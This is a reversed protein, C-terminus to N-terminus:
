LCLRSLYYTLTLDQLRAAHPIVTWLEEKAPCLTAADVAFPLRTEGSGSRGVSVVSGLQLAGDVDGPHVQTAQWHLRTRLQSLAADGNGDWIQSLTRYSPGYAIGLAGFLTYLLPMDVAHVGCDARTAAHDVAGCGGQADRGVTASCHVAADILAQGQLEGSRVEFQNSSIACEVLQGDAEVVLPLLFFVGRLVCGEASQASLANSAARAVELYGAGPFVIRSQVVHDSVVAHLAGAIPSRFTVSGDASSLRHQVFPHRPDRWPFSCRTFVLLVSAPSAFTAQSSLEGLLAHAVIGSLGFAAAGCATAEVDAQTNIPFAVQRVVPLGGAILPNLVRLQANAAAYKKQTFLHAVMLSLLGSPAESHGASAKHSGAILPRGDHSCAASSVARMEIPDALASGLGQVQVSAVESPSLSASALAVQIARAQATGNPASLSASRGGATVSSGCLRASARLGVEISVAGVAESRGYGDAKTDFTKSRGDPTMIGGGVLYPLLILKAGAALVGTCEICQLARVGTHVAVLTSSCATNISMSPGHLDLAFALRGSAFHPQEGTANYPSERMLATKSTRLVHLSQWDLHEIGVFVGVDSGALSATQQGTDHLAAYGTELLLRQQPDMTLAEVPSVNFLRMDFCEVGAIFGGSSGYYVQRQQEEIIQFRDIPVPAMADGAAHQMAHLRGPLHSGGPWRSSVTGIRPSVFDSSRPQSGAIHLVSQRAASPAAPPALLTMLHAAIARSTPQEFALTASLKVSTVEALTSAMSTAALSDLGLELLGMDAELAKSDTVFDRVHDLVQNTVYTLRGDAPMSALQQQLVSQRAASPAAPPALLTMLHAAIARSTPQEFALTASLKVSTVEALTSAMSTAALSDLGLELLGMDAELAKSDTVFDRVHDLVQNTVYTLRRDAPMNALQQQLGTVCTQESSDHSVVETSPLKVGEGCAQQLQTRLEVAGLSDVGAEMLPADADVAGGAIQRVMGFVVDFGLINATSTTVSHNRKDEKPASRRGRLHAYPTLFGRVESTGSLLKSWDAPLVAFNRCAPLLARRLASIAVVRSIAGLGWRALLHDAGKRAAYGIDSVAGWNVSHGRSGSCYRYAAMSDLWSNAASHSAQGASGMLGAVSSYLNFHHLASRSLTAHLARAGHVKPGYTARFSRVHQNALTADALQHAAHFVGSICLRERCLLHVVVCVDRDDSADCRVRLVSRGHAAVWAWDNESGQMVRDSRSSLVLQRAGGEVLLRATLLGLGGLGGSFFSAGSDFMASTIVSHQMAVQALIVAQGRLFMDGQMCHSQHFGCDVLLSEWQRWNLLPSDQGAREPDHCENFFWWGDTLGFTTQILASTAQAENVVLLGGMCLLRECNHLTNRMFPTAHLCNTSILVGFQHLAFGQLRPDSDINLITYELFPFDVFRVRAQRLFVESVDTFVYRDCAYQLTPLVSSATGGSGAGVELAVVHRKDPLLELVLKLAAVICRNYFASVVSDEYLPLVAHMSGGPFLLEQYTVAGSLVCALSPGCREALQLEAYLDPHAALVDASAVNQELPQRGQKCCWRYLLRHHWVPIESAQCTRVAERQYQQCVSELLNYALLLQEMDLATMAEEIHSDLLPSVSALSIGLFTPQTDYPTVLRPVYVAHHRLMAETEISTRLHMGHVSGGPLRLSPHHIIAALGQGSEQVDVCGAPLTPYEQRCARALGWLGAHSATAQMIPQTEKTCLWTPPAGDLLSQSQLLRLAGDIVRLEAGCADAAPLLSATFVVCHWRVRALMGEDRSVTVHGYSSLSPLAHGVVLVELRTPSSICPIDYPVCCWDAEYHWRRQAAAGTMAHSGQDAITDDERMGKTGASDLSADRGKMNRLAVDLLHPSRILAECSQARGATTSVLLSILCEAYEDLANLLYSQDISGKQLLAEGVGAGTVLPLHLSTAMTASARRHRALTDMHANAAAYNAQEINGMLSTLSSFFICAGLPICATLAHLWFAGRSKAAHVAAFRDARMSRVLADQTTGAAHLLGLSGPARMLSYATALADSPEAIDAVLTRSASATMGLSSSANSSQASYSVRGSRSILQLHATGHKRALVAARLGLGGLGGTVGLTSPPQYSPTRQKHNAVAALQRLRSHLVKRNYCSISDESFGDDTFPSESHAEFTMRVAQEDSLVDTDVLRLSCHMFELRAVRVLGHMGGYAACASAPPATGPIAIHVGCTLFVLQPSPQLSAICQIVALATQTSTLHPMGLESGNAHLVITSAALMGNDDFCHDESPKNSLVEFSKRVDLDKGYWDAYWLYSGTLDWAGYNEVPFITENIETQIAALNSMLQPWAGQNPLSRQQTAIEQLRASLEGTSHITRKRDFCSILLYTTYQACAPGSGSYPLVTFVGNKNLEAAQDLWAKGKGARQGTCLVAADDPGVEIRTGDECYLVVCGDELCLRSLIKQRPMFRRCHALTAGDEIGGRQQPHSAHPPGVRHAQGSRVLMTEYPAFRHEKLNDSSTRGGAIREASHPTLWFTLDDNEPDKPLMKDRNLFLVHGRHVWVVSEDDPDLGRLVDIAAKSAGVIYKTRAHSVKVQYAALQSSHVICAGNTVHTPDVPLFPAGSTTEYTGAAFVLARCRFTANDCIVEKFQGDAIDKHSVYSTRTRVTILKHNAMQRIYDLVEAQAPRYFIGNNRQWQPALSLCRYSAGTNHLRLGPYDNKFWVGGVDAERDIVVSSYGCAAADRACGLGTIGCGIICIDADLVVKPADAKEDARSELAPSVATFSHLSAIQLLFVREPPSQQLPVANRTHEEFCVCHTYQTGREERSPALASEVVWTHSARRYILPPTIRTSISSRSAPKPGASLVVHAITGGLGFSSVGGHDAVNVDDELSGLQVPTVHTHGQLRAGVHPNLARLQANPAAQRCALGHLLKLMGVMGAAPETHGMNGKVGGVPLSGARSSSCAAALAGVEVPDGLATGTGHAELLVVGATNAIEHTALILVQQAKGNPATFSASKGDQRVASGAIHVSVAEDSSGDVLGVACAEGRGFGDARADLTHCRGRESTLGGAAYLMSVAPILMASVGALLAQQCEANKVACFASHCAALSSSCATDIAICPGHLGLVYSLRGAAFCHGAGGIGHM